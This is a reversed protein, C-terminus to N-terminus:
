EVDGEGGDKKDSDEAEEAREIIAKLVSVFKRANEISEEAYPINASANINYTFRGRKDKELYFIKLLAEAKEAESEYIELLEADIEGLKVIKKFEKYARKHEEPPKTEIKKSLLYAKATYFISYYSQSIVDAFFTQEEPIKLTAKLEKSISIEFNAKAILIESEARELYLKVRSDM